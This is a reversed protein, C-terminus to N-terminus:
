HRCGFICKNRMEVELTHGDSANEFAFGVSLDASAAEFEGNIHVKEIVICSVLPCASVLWHFTICISVM